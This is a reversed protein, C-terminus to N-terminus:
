HPGVHRPCFEGKRYRNTHCPFTQMITILRPLTDQSDTRTDDICSIPGPSVYQLLFWWLLPQTGQCTKIFRDGHCCTCSQLDWVKCTNLQRPGLFLEQLLPTPLLSHTMTGGCVRALMWKLDHFKVPSNIIYIPAPGVWWSQTSMDRIIDDWGLM